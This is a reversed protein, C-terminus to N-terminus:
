PKTQKNIWLTKKEHVGVADVDPMEETRERREMLATLPSKGRLEDPIGFSEVSDGRELLAGMFIYYKLKDQLYVPEHRVAHDAAATLQQPTM